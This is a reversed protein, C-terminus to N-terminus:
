FIDPNKQDQYVQYMMYGAGLVLAIASLLPWFFEEYSGFLFGLVAVILVLVAIFASAVKHHSPAVKAGWYVALAGGAFSSFLWYIIKFYGGDSSAGIFWRQFASFINVVMSGLLLGGISAPVVAVWRLIKKWNM